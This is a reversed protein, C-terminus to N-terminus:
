YAFYEVFCISLPSLISHMSSSFDRPLQISKLEGFPLFASHLMEETVADDLGGVYLINKKEIFAMILSVFPSSLKIVIDPVLCM